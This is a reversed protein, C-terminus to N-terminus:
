YLRTISKSVPPTISDAEITKNLTAKTIQLRKYNGKSKLITKETEKM